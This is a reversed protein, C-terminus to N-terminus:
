KTDHKNYQTAAVNGNGDHSQKQQIEMFLNVAAKYDLYPGWNMIDDIFDSSSSLRHRFEGKDQKTNPLQAAYM